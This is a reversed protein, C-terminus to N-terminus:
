FLASHLYRSMLPQMKYKSEIKTKNKIKNLYYFDFTKKIFNHMLEIGTYKKLVVIILYFSFLFLDGFKIRFFYIM